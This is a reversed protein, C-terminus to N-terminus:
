GKIGMVGGNDQIEVHAKSDALIGHDFKAWLGGKEIPSPLGDSASHESIVTISANSNVGVRSGVIFEIALLTGPGTVIRDGVQLDTGLVAKRKTGDAAIVYANGHVEVFKAVATSPPAAHAVVRITLSRSGQVQKGAVTVGSVDLRLTVLGVKVGKVRFDFPATRSDLLPAGDLPQPEKVVTLQPGLSVLGPGLSVSKFDDGSAKVTATVYAVQGVGIEGLSGLGVSLVGPPTYGAPFIAVVQVDGLLGGESADGLWPLPHPNNVESARCKAVDPGTGSGAIVVFYSSVPTLAPETVYHRWYKNMFAQQEHPSLYQQEQYDLTAPSVTESEKTTGDRYSIAYSTAGRVRGFVIGSPSGCGSSLPTIVGAYYLSAPDVQQGPKLSTSGPMPLAPAAFVVGLVTAVLCGAILLARSM